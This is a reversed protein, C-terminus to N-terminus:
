LINDLFCKVYLNVNEVTDFIITSYDISSKILKLLDGKSLDRNKDVLDSIQRKINVNNECYKNLINFVRCTADKRQGENLNLASIKDFIKANNQVTFMYLIENYDMALAIEFCSPNKDSEFFPDVDTFLILQRVMDVKNARTFHHLVYEQKTNPYLNEIYLNTVIYTLIDVNSLKALVLSGKSPVIYEFHQLIIEVTHISKCYKICNFIDRSQGDKFVDLIMKLVQPNDYECAFRITKINDLQKKEILYQMIAVNNNTQFVDEMRKETSPCYGNIYIVFFKVFSPESCRDYEYHDNQFQFM